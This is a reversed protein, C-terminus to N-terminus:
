IAEETEKELLYHNLLVRDPIKKLCWVRSIYEGCPSELNCLLIHQKEIFNVFVFECVQLNSIREYLGRYDSKVFMPIESYNKQEVEEVSRM